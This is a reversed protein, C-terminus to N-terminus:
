VYAPAFQALAAYDAKNAVVELTKVQFAVDDKVSHRTKHCLMQVDTMTHAAHREVLARRAFDPDNLLSTDADAIRSVSLKLLHPRSERVLM